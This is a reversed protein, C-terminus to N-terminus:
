LMTVVFSLCTELKKLRRIVIYVLAPFPLFAVKASISGSNSNAVVALFVILAGRNERLISANVRM